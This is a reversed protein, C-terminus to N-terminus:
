GGRLRASHSPQQAALHADLFSLLAQALAAAFRQRHQATDRLGEYASEIQVSSIASGVAAEATWRQREEETGAGEVEAEETRQKKKELSRPASGHTSTTWAGNFYVVGAEPTPSSPSPLCPYGREELWRGLSHEGSVMSQLSCRSPSQQWLSHLSFRTSLSSILPSSPPSSSLATLDAGNLLYGLQCRRDHRQGHLDLLLGVGGRLWAPPSARAYPQTPHAVSETGRHSHTTSHAISWKARLICRHYDDWVRRGGESEASDERSRNLDVKRRHVRSIVLHPICTPPLLRCLEAHVARGLEQSNLDKEHCGSVREPLTSSVRFPPLTSPLSPSAAEASQVSAPVPAPAPVASHRHGGHPVSLIIPASGATYEVSAGENYYVVGPLFPHSLFSLLPCSSASPLAQSHPDFPNLPGPSRVRSSVAKAAVATAGAVEAEVEEQEGGEEAQAPQSLAPCSRQPCSPTPLSVAPPGSRHSCPRSCVIDDRSCEASAPSRLSSSLRIPDM